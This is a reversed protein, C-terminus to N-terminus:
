RAERQKKNAEKSAKAQEFKFKSYEILRVVPPDADPTILVVDTNYEDAMDLAEMLSMLGLMEKEVGIVRVEDARSDCVRHLVGAWEAEPASAGCVACSVELPM